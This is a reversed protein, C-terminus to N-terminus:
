AGDQPTDPRATRKRPARPKAPAREPAGPTEQATRAGDPAQQANRAAELEARAKRLEAVLHGYAVRAEDREGRLRDAEAGSHRGAALVRADGWMEAAVTLKGVCEDVAANRADRRFLQKALAGQLAAIHARASREFEERARDDAAEIHQPLPESHCTAWPHQAAHVARAAAGIAAQRHDVDTVPLDTM